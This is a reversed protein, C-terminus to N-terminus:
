WPCVGVGEGSGLLCVSYWLEALTSMDAFKYIHTVKSLMNMGMADGTTAKFRIYLLRGAVASYVSKLKAFRSTSAFAEEMSSFNEPNELWLKLSSAEAASPLRVVPGRTMGDNVVYSNVGGSSSVARCGRNTSAVLTGETTAMPVYYSDGDLLLPGAVGVPVPMYGVVNECCAGMVLSYNYSSYPLDDLTLDSTIQKLIMKRRISVGREPDGVATELKYSPIHKAGVLGLIEDDTLTTAGSQTSVVYM